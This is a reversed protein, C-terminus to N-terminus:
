LHRQWFELMKNYLHRRAARDAIGHKRMPYFMMDFPIGAQVLEEIFRWSNQPHVNDDYTGHVLLLRGHLNKASKVFSTKEYGEPNEQPTKMTFEAWKTDYYHWDTVPAVSIGAKFEKSNTMANLTFSGGGSWGWIGFRDPDVYPQAKLWRVGDIIDKMETPGSMLNLLRNELKKSIATASRHDFRVVLYGHRLLIQDFYRATNWSHFVTPASPGAYIHYIIPYRRGPNFDRPKLIEAPMPFGDSTPITFLEPFQFDLAEAMEQRSPAIVQKPKGDRHHLTLAPIRTTSSYTDFYFNADPSFNIRHTGEGESLKQLGSGDLKIRYLHREVSSEKLSTFYIWGQNEDIAMVSKRLWFPGGSSRLAWEGKTIQNVLKGDLSFRYLHAYGDRESQMIFHRRNNLFYLDDNINVWAPDKETLVHSAEGTMRDVFYMDLATQPRNMTQLSFRQSDPLWKVRAIYEYKEPLQVWTTKRPRNLEMIGVRVRPNTTGAKPYRQKIVRPVVPEYDVFHMVSVESEDSQLYLIARSDPSWWYGIDRRGFIEEWYVWSLTGNLTTQSGDSTIQKEHRREIEYVYLDNERVYALMKGDPSFNVSKEEAATATVRVFRSAALELLFIDEGFLYVAREGMSDFSGPWPLESLTSDAYPRLANLSALAANLDVVTTRAGFKPNFREFTREEGPRRLDYLIATNDELWFVRPVATLEASADSYIWEVTIEQSNQGLSAATGVFFLCITLVFPKPLNRMDSVSLRRM